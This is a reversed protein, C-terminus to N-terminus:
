GPVRDVSKPERHPQDRKFFEDGFFKRFFPDDFPSSTRAMETKRKSKGRYQRGCAEGIKAIEVFNKGNGGAMPLQPATAMPRVIRNPMPEPGATGTPLWGMDSAVVIGMVVWCGRICLPVLWARVIM